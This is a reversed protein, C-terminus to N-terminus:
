VPAISWTATHAEGPALVLLDTGSRFADGPCSMPEVAVGARRREGPVIDSTFVQWWRAWAGATLRVGRGSGDTLEAVRPPAEADDGFGDGGTGAARFLHDLEVGALRRGPTLDIDRGDVPETRGTPLLVDDLEAVAEVPLRLTWDDVAGARPEGDGAVLYPHTGVGYPLDVDSENRAVVEVHCGDAALRYTARVALSGPYGEGAPVTTELVVCDEDRDEVTMALADLLGHIATGRQPEAVRARYTRGQWDYRAGGIRNPWPVLLSGAYAPRPQGEAYGLLLDRGDAHLDALAGGVPDVRATLGHGSLHVHGTV